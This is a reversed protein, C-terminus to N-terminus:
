AESIRFGVTAEKSAICLSVRVCMRKNNVLSILISPLRDFYLM